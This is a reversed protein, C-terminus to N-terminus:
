PVVNDHWKFRPNEKLKHIIQHNVKKYNEKKDEGLLDEEKESLGFWKEMLSLKARISRLRRNSVDKAKPHVLILHKRANSKRLFIELVIPDNFSYGIVVWVSKRELERNLQLLMSIYPDVYLEKEAIPYTMMEGEYERGVYSRGRETVEIVTNARKEILWNVSGHLKFLQMGIDDRLFEKPNLIDVKRVRNYDFGTDINAGAAERWYYELCTDYNTTFIKWRTNWVYDGNQNIGGGGLELLFRNFFDRYVQAIKGFSEDPIVCKEKVFTQFKKRLSRCIEKDKEAPFPKKFKATAYLSLLGLREPTYNIIGDIVTFVGELDVQRHLQKELNEKIDTYTRRESGTGNESLSEEFDTVFQKMTPIGFPASAGAGFFFVIQDSSVAPM